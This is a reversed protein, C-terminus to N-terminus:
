FIMFFVNPSTVSVLWTLISTNLHRGKNLRVWSVIRPWPYTGLTWKLEVEMAYCTILHIQRIEQTFDVGCGWTQRSSLFLQTFCIDNHVFDQTFSFHIQSKQKLPDGLYFLDWNNEKLVWFDIKKVHM